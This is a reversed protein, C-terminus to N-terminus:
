HPPPSCYLFKVQMSVMVLFNISGDIQRIKSVGGVIWLNVIKQCVWKIKLTVIFYYMKIKLHSIGQGLSQWTPGHFSHLGQIGDFHGASTSSSKCSPVFLVSINLNIKILRNFVCM